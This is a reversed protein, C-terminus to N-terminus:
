DLVAFLRMEWEGTFFRVSRGDRRNYNEQGELTERPVHERRVQFDVLFALIKLRLIAQAHMKRATKTMLIYQRSGGARRRAM